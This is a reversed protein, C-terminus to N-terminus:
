GNAADYWDISGVLLGTRTLHHTLAVRSGSLIRALGFDVLKAKTEPETIIINTPKIDRHVIGHEHVAALAECVQIAVEIAQQVPLREKESILKRLSRGSLHEMVIYPFRNQWVGFCYFQVVGEHAMDALVRGERKFRARDERDGLLTPLLAKVVVQRDLERDYALFVSGM